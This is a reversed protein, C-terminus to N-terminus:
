ALSRSPTNPLPAFRRRDTAREGRWRSKAITVGIDTLDRPPMNEALEENLDFSNFGGYGILEGTLRLAIFPESPSLRPMLNPRRIRTTTPSPSSSACAKPHDPSTFPSSAAM